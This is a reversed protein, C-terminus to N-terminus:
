SSSSVIAPSLAGRAVRNSQRRDVGDAQVVQTAVEIAKPGRHRTGVDLHCVQVGVLHVLLYEVVLAVEAQERKGIWAALERRDWPLVLRHDDGRKGVVSQNPAEAPVSSFGLSREPSGNM